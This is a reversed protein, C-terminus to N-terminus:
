SRAAQAAGRGGPCHREIAALVAEIKLPKRLVDDAPVVAMSPAGAATILVVPIDRLGPDELQHERFSKGDMVPMMLDLLIVCPRRRGERLYVLAEKGNAVAVVQHGEDELLVLLSERIDEDDDIVLIDPM